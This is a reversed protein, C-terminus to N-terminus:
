SWPYDAYRSRFLTRRGASVTCCMGYRDFSSACRAAQTTCAEQWLVYSLAPTRTSKYEGAVLPGASVNAADAHLRRYMDITFAHYTPSSKQTDIYNMLDVFIPLHPPAAILAQFIAGPGVSLSTYMAHRDVDVFYELPRVLKVDVDMYVGGQVYLVAYRFLDAKHAGNQLRRFTAAYSTNPFHQTLFQECDDDSYMRREFRGAFERVNRAVKPPVAEPRATTQHLVRPIAPAGHTSKARLHASNSRKFASPGFKFGRSVSCLLLLGWWM